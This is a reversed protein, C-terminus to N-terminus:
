VRTPVNAANDDPERCANVYGHLAMLLFVAPFASFFDLERRREREYKAISIRTLVGHNDDFYGGQRREPQGSLSGLFVLGVFAVLLLIAVASGFAIEWPRMLERLRRYRARIEFFRLEGQDAISFPQWSIVAWGFIPFMLGWEIAIVNGPLFPRSVVLMSAALLAFAACCVAAAVAIATDLDIKVRPTM